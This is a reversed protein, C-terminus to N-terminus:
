AVHSAILLTVIDTFIINDLSAGGGGWFFFFFFFFKSVNYLNNFRPLVNVISSSQRVMTKLIWELLIAFRSIIGKLLLACREKIKCTVGNLKEGHKLQRTVM